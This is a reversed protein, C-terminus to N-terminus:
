WHRATLRHAEAARARGHFPTGQARQVAAAVLDPKVSPLPPFNTESDHGIFLLRKKRLNIAKM